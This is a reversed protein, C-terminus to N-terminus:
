QSSMNLTTDYGSASCQKAHQQLYRVAFAIACLRRDGVAAIAAGWAGEATPLPALAVAMADAAIDLRGTHAVAVVRYARQTDDVM